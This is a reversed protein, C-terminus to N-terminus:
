IVQSGLAAKLENNEQQLKLIADWLQDIQKYFYGDYRSMPLQKESEASNTRKTNAKQQSKINKM